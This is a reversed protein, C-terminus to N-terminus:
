KWIENKLIESIQLLLREITLRVDDSLECSYQIEIVPPEKKNVIIKIEM